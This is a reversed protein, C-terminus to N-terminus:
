LYWVFVVAVGQASARQCLRILSRIAAVAAETVELAEGYAVAVQRDV